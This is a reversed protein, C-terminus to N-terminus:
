SRLLAEVYEKAKKLHRKAVKKSIFILEYDADDRVSQLDMLYSRFKNPYIKRKRILEGSFKAQLVDHGIREIPIGADALASIAAHFAAYYARNASANYLENAFLLEAAKLNEKAESAFINKM